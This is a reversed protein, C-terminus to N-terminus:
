QRLRYRLEGGIGPEAAPQLSGDLALMRVLPGAGGRALLRWRVSDGHVALVAARSVSTMSAFLRQVRAYDALTRVGDVAVEVPVYAGNVAYIAAYADAARDVGAAAGAVQSTETQYQFLWQVSANASTDSAHGILLADAGARTADGLLTRPDAQLVTADTLGDAQLQQATPWRLEIGRLAAQADIASKLDSGTDSTVISGAGSGTGAGPGTGPGTGPVTLLVFTVPRTRGWIPAGTGTLWREIAGGDFGVVLRGDIAYRYQQVYRDASAVLPGYTPDNAAGLRGTVRVLVVRMADRFGADRSADSRDPVPVAVQYLDVRQDARASPAQGMVALVGLLALLARWGFPFAPHRHKTMQRDGLVPRVTTYFVM